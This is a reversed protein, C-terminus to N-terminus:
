GHHRMSSLMSPAKELLNFVFTNILISLLSVAVVMHYFDAPILDLSKAITCLVISFEGIQSLGVGVRWAVGWRYRFFLCLGTAVVMKFGLVIGLLGVLLPWHAAVLSPNLLVGLSVFFTVVFLDRMPLMRGMTQSTTESGSLVLGAVFAGLEISLGSWMSVVGIGMALALLVLVSLEPDRARGVFELLRPVVRLGLMFILALLAVTKASVWVISTLQRQSPDAMVPLFLLLGMILCDEIIAIGLLTQGYDTKLEGREMLMKTIVM